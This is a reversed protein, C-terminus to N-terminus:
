LHYKAVGNSDKLVGFIADKNRSTWGRQKFELECTEKTNHNTVLTQGQPEIYTDGILLNGVLVIPNEFTYAEKHKDLKVLFNKPDKAQISKGTFKITAQLTKEISYGEGQCNIAMIPPHHSVQECLARYTPTVVEFTEGLLPNFPKQIRGSSAFFRAASWTAVHALRM